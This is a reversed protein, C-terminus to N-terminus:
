RVKKEFKSSSLEITRKRLYRTRKVNVNIREDIEILTSYNNKAPLGDEREHSETSEMSSAPACMREPLFHRQGWSRARWRVEWLALIREVRRLPWVQEFGYTLEWKRTTWVLEWQTREEATVLRSAMQALAVQRAQAAANKATNSPM